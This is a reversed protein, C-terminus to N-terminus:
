AMLLAADDADCRGAGSPCVLAARATNAGLNYVVLEQTADARLRWVCAKPRAYSVEVALRGYLASPLRERQKAWKASPIQWRASRKHRQSRSQSSV